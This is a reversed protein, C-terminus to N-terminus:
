TGKRAGSATKLIRKTARLLADAESETGITIRLYDKVAPAKFWRVLIKRARLKGLWTEAAFGPPRVLVFNTESPLVGFGLAALERSVRERTAVIRRFNERYYALDELAALAGIQGLGNMNYSDRIKDLAAILVPHGVFYGARQFCLAYAKSFTRSVIVHPYKLALELANERAFDVYAEDLVIVGEHERCLAELEATRYGRGSPANPTTVYSLAARFDWARSKRLVAPSPIGFEGELAVAKERAGHIAALVPYLSYGPSFFQVTSAHDGAGRGAPEVFARTALALLEDSGNGVIINESGCGHLEALRQRLLQAKPNPYLRLRGDTAAKIAALVRPSPPYPNENTNLKVLGKVKPQEGPVYPHLDRVLPRVLSQINRPTMMQM